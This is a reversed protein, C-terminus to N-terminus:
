AAAVFAYKEADVMATESTRRRLKFDVDLVRDADSSSGPAWAETLGAKKVISIGCSLISALRRSSKCILALGMM